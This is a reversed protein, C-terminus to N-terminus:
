RHETNRSISPVRTYRGRVFSREGPKLLDPRVAEANLTGGAITKALDAVSNGFEEKVNTAAHEISQSGPKNTVHNAVARTPLLLRNASLALIRHRSPSSLRFFSRAIPRHFNM